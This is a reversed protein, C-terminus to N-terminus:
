HTVGGKSASIELLQQLSEQIGKQLISKLHNSVAEHLGDVKALNTGWIEENKLIKLVLQDSDNNEWAEALATIAEKADRIKYEEDRRIGAMHEEDIMRIPRYYVFLAALSFTMLQTSSKTM